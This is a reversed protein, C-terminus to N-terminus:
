SGYLVMGFFTVTNQGNIYKLQTDKTTNYVDIGCAELSTLAREPFRCPKDAARACAKCVHCGGSTLHWFPVEMEAKLVKQLRQSLASNKEGAEMMGEFDFSDEIEWIIQYLVAKPFSKVKAMLEDIPGIDPPCMWCKGYKGCQNSACIDRFVESLVIQSGDIVTAKTAGAKLAAETLQRDDM